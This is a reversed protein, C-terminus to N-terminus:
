KARAAIATKQARELARLRRLVKEPVKGNQALLQSVPKVVAAKATSTTTITEAFGMCCWSPQSFSVGIVTGSAMESFQDSISQSETITGSSNTFNTNNSLSADEEIKTFTVDVTGVETPCTASTCGPAVIDVENTCNGDSDWAYCYYSNGYQSGSTITANLTLVAGNTYGAGVNGKFAPNSVEMFGELCGPVEDVCFSYNIFTCTLDCMGPLPADREVSVTAWEGTAYEWETEVYTQTITTSGFSLPGLLLAIAVIATKLKMRNM